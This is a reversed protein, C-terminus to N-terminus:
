NQWIEKLLRKNKVVFKNDMYDKNKYYIERKLAWSGIGKPFRERNIKNMHMAVLNFIYKRIYYDKIATSKRKRSRKRKKKYKWKRTLYANADIVDFFKQKLKYVNGKNNFTDWMAECVDEIHIGQMSYRKGKLGRLLWTWVVVFKQNCEATRSVFFLRRGKKVFGKVFFPYLKNCIQLLIEFPKEKSVEMKLYLLINDTKNFGSKGRSCFFNQFQRYLKLKEPTFSLLKESGGKKFFSNYYIEEFINYLFKIYNFKKLTTNSRFISSNKYYDWKAMFAYGFRNQKYLNFYYKFREQAALNIINKKKNKNKKNKKTWM